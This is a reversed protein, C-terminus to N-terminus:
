LISRLQSKSTHAWGLTNIFYTFVLCCAASRIVLASLLGCVHDCRNSSTCIRAPMSLGAPGTGAKSAAGGPSACGIDVASQLVQPKLMVFLVCHGHSHVYGQMMTFVLLVVEVAVRVTLGTNDHEREFNVVPVIWVIELM